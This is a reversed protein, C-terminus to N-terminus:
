QYKYIMIMKQKILYLELDININSINEENIILKIVKFM